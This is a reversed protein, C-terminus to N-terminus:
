LKFCHVACEGMCDSHWVAEKKLTILVLPALVIHKQRVARRPSASRPPHLMNILLSRHSLWDATNFLHCVSVFIASSEWEEGVGTSPYLRGRQWKRSHCAALPPYILLLPQSSSNAPGVICWATHQVAPVCPHGRSRGSLLPRQRTSAAWLQGPKKQKQRANLEKPCNIM